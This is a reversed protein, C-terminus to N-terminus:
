QSYKKYAALYTRDSEDQFKEKNEELASLKGFISKYIINQAQNSLEKDEASDMKAESTLFLNLLKMLDDKDIKDIAIWESDEAVRFFGNGNEIKLIKMDEEGRKM